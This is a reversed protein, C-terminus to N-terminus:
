VIVNETYHLLDNVWHITLSKYVIQSINCRIVHTFVRTFIISIGFKLFIAFSFATDWRVPPLSPHLELPPSHGLLLPSLLLLWHPRLLHVPNVAAWREQQLLALDWRWELVRVHRVCVCVCWVFVCVRQIDYPPLNIFETCIDNIHVNYM